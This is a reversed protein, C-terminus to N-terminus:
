AARGRTDAEAAGILVPGYRFAWLAMRRLWASYGAPDSERSPVRTGPFRERLERVTEPDLTTETM